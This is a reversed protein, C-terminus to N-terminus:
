QHAFLPLQGQHVGANAVAEGVPLSFYVGDFGIDVQGGGEGQGADGGILYGPHDEGVQVEVVKAARESSDAIGPFRGKGVGDVANLLALPAIRQFAAAGHAGGVADFFETKQLLPDLEVQELAITSKSRVKRSKYGATVGPVM